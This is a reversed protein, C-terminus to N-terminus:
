VGVGTVRAPLTGGSVLTELDARDADLGLRGGPRGKLNGLLALAADDRDPRESRGEAEGLTAGVGGRLIRV